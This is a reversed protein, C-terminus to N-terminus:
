KGPASAEAMHQQIFPMQRKIAGDWYEWSHNGPQEAYAHTIGDETLQRHLTRNVELFFDEEGCDIAIALEGDKLSKIVEIVTYNNWDDSLPGIRKTIKWRNHFPRIDAAGSLSVAISFVDKHRTALYLAGHGGMSNGAIARHTRDARTRYNTDVHAVCEDSVFTEYQSKPDIPSDFWWSRRDGDPCVFIMGYQDALAAVDTRDNWTGHHDGAGHLLYTVPFRDAGTNYADPVIVTVAIDKGMGTSPITIHEVVAASVTTTLVVLMLVPHNFRKLM